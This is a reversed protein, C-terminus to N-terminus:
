ACAAFQPTVLLRQLFQGVCPDVDPTRIVGANHAFATATGPMGLRLQERDMDKPISIEAPYANAGGISGVRAIVGSVAVQGQGVGRPIKGSVNRPLGIKPSQACAVPHTLVGLIEAAIARPWSRVNRGFAFNM